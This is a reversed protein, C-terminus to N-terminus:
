NCAAATQTVAAQNLLSSAADAPISKSSKVAKTFWNLAECAEHSNNGHDLFWRAVQLRDTLSDATRGPLGFSNVLTTLDDLEPVFTITVEAVRYDPQKFDGATFVNAPGPSSQFGNSGTLINGGPIFGPHVHVVPNTDPHTGDGNHVQNLFATDGLSGGPGGEDNVETGADLVQSGPVFFHIAGEGGNFRGHDFLRIPHDADTGFFADNSPIVMVLYSLFQDNPDKRNVTFEASIVAVSGPKTPNGITAQPGHNSYANFLGYMCDTASGSYVGSDGACTNPPPLTNAPDGTVGDEAIHQVATTAAEGLRFTYFHGDNLGIWPRMIWIGNQPAVNKITFKVTEAQLTCGALILFMSFLVFRVQRSAM